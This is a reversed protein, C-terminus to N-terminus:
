CWYTTNRKEREKVRDVDFSVALRLKITRCQSYKYRSDFVKVVVVDRILYALQTVSGRSPPIPEGRGKFLRFFAGTEIHLLVLSFGFM